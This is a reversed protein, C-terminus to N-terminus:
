LDLRTYNMNLKTSIITSEQNNVDRVRMEIYVEGIHIIKSTNIAFIDQEISIDDDLTATYIETNTKTAVIVFKAAIFNSASIPNGASDNVPIEIKNNDNSFLM